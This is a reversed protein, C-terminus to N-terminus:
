FPARKIISQAAPCLGQWIHFLEGRAGSPRPDVTFPAKLLLRHICKQDCCGGHAGLEKVEGYVTDFKAPLQMCTRVCSNLRKQCTDCMAAKSPDCCHKGSTKQAQYLTLGNVTDTKHPIKNAM